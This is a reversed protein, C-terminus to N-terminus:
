ILLWHWKVTLYLKKTHNQKVNIDLSLYLVELKLTKNRIKSSNLNHSFVFAPLLTKSLLRCYLQHKVASFDAKQWEMLPHQQLNTHKFDAASTLWHINRYDSEGSNTSRMEPFGASKKLDHFSAAALSGLLRHLVPNSNAKHQSAWSFNQTNEEEIGSIASTSFSSSQKQDLAECTQFLLFLFTKFNCGRDHTFVVRTVFVWHLFWIQSKTELCVCQNISM